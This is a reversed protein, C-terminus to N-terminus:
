TAPAPVSQVSGVNGIGAEGAEARRGARRDLQRERRLWAGPTLHMFWRFERVFHPQDAYAEGILDSWASRPALRVQDLTRLLRERRLLRKPPLGFHANCLRELQREGVGLARAWDQVSRVGEARLLGHARAVRTDAVRRVLRTAFFDDLLDMAQRDSAARLRPALAEGADGFVERLPATRGDFAVAPRGVMQSWGLPTLTLAVVRSPTGQAMMARERPGGLAAAPVPALEGGVPGARWAGEVIWGLHSWGPPVIDRVPRHVDFIFYSEIAERLVPAPRYFTVRARRGEAGDAAAERM